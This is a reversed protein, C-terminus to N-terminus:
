HLTGEADFDALHGPLDARMYKTVNEGLYRRMLLEAEVRILNTLLIFESQRRKYVYKTRIGDTTKETDFVRIGNARFYKRLQALDFTIADIARQITDAYPGPTKVAATIRKADRDFATLVLPLLVYEKLFRIEEHNPVNM